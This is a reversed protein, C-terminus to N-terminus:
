AIEDLISCLRTQFLPIKDGVRKRWACVSLWAVLEDGLRFKQIGM